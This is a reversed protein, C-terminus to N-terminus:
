CTVVEGNNIFGHWGCGEGNIKVRLISPKLDLTEFIEGIRQWQANSPYIPPGGDLPNAFPVFLQTGCGCPCDLILGVGYREVAPTGDANCVGEGGSGIFRPNLDILKM